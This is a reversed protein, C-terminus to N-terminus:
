SRQYRSKRCDMKQAIDIGPLMCSVCYKHCRHDIWSVCHKRRTNLAPNVINVVLVNTIFLIQTQYRYNVINIDHICWLCCKHRTDMYEHYVIFIKHGSDMM